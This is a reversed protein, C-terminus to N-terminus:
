RADLRRHEPRPGAPRPAGLSNGRPAAERAGCSRLGAGGERRRPRAGGCGLVPLRRGTKGLVKMPLGHEDKGADDTPDAAEAILGGGLGAAAAVGLGAELLRRRSIDFSDGHSM